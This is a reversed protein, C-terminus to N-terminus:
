IPFPDPKLELIEYLNPLPIKRGALSKTSRHKIRIVGKKELSGLAAKLSTESISILKAMTRIPIRECTGAQNNAYYKLAMYALTEHPAPNAAKFFAKPIM